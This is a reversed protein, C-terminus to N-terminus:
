AKNAANLKELVSEVDIGHVACAEELSEGASAPCGLCHMGAELLIEALDSNIELIEGILMDKTIMEKEEKEKWDNNRDKLRKEVIDMFDTMRELVKRGMRFKNKGSKVM